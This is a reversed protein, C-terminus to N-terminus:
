DRNTPGSSTKKEVSPGGAEEMAINGSVGTSSFTAKVVPSTAVRTIIYRDVLWNKPETKIEVLLQDGVALTTDCFRYDFDYIYMLKTNDAASGPIEQYFKCLTKPFSDLPKWDFLPKGNWLIRVYETHGVGPPGAPFQIGEQHAAMEASDTPAISADGWIPMFHAHFFSVTVRPGAVKITAFPTVTSTDPMHPHFNTHISDVVYNNRINISTTFGEVVASSDKLIFPLRNFRFLQPYQKEFAAADLSDQRKKEPTRNPTQALAGTFVVLLPLISLLLRKM